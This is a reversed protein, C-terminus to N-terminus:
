DPHQKRYASHLRKSTVSQEEALRGQRGPLAVQVSQKRYLNHGYYSHSPLEQGPAMDAAETDVMEIHVAGTDETEIAV